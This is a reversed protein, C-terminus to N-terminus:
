GRSMLVVTEVHATHPFMDVPQIKKIGFGGDVLIRCDRALTAPNCSVYAMKKVGSAIVADLFPKECGKRPPDAIIADVSEGKQVLQPLMQEAPACIFGVNEIGNRKANKKADEIAPAVTEIGIVQKAYRAALLSITGIGCYADVLRESGDLTLLDLATQYLRQTQLSNVQLFSAPHVMFRLGCLEEEITEDGWLLVYKRGTIVNTPADNINLYISKLGEVRSQLQEILADQYPLKGTAVVTVMVHGHVTTRAVVHRLLGKKTEEAYPAIRYQNAWDRVTQAALVVTEKEILCDELPILRHSRPAYFGIEVRGDVLGIPFSGKNRYQWPTDEMGLVPQVTLGQFKGIRLFADEVQKRKYALQAPYSLHQITCGGCRSECPCEPQMREPSKVLVEVLKGVGYGSGAKIILARVTEGPLAGPVFVAYGDIRGVGQGESNLATIDMTVQQNKEVPLAKKM